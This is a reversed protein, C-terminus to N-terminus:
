RPRKGAQVQIETWIYRFGSDLGVRGTIFWCVMDLHHSILRATGDDERCPSHVTDACTRAINRERARRKRDKTGHAMTKGERRV